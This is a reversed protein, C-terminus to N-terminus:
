INILDKTLTDGELHSIDEILHDPCIESKKFLSERFKGTKVLFTIYNMKQAGGIDNILDDGVVAIEKAQCDMGQTALEFFAQEPKGVIM